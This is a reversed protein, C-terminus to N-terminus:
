DNAQEAVIESVPRLDVIVTSDETDMNAVPEPMEAADNNADDNNADDDLSVDADVDADVDVDADADADANVDVDADIPELQTDTQNTAVEAPPAPPTEAVSITPSDSASGAETTVVPVPSTIPSVETTVEESVLESGLDSERVPESRDANHDSSASVADSTTLDPASYRMMPRLRNVWLTYGAGTLHVGDVTLSPELRGRHDAFDHHLDLYTVKRDNAIRRLALNTEGVKSNFRDARPLLSQLVVRTAPSQKEIRDIVTAVNGAIESIDVGRTLDNTGIMVFVSAPVGDTIEGLREATEASVEGGIGRNRVPLGPFAGAWDGDETLSDGLMVIDGARIPFARHLDLAHARPDRVIDQVLQKLRARM